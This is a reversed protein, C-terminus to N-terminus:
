ASGLNRVSQATAQANWRCQNTPADFTFAIEVPAVRRQEATGAALLYRGLGGVPGFYFDVIASEGPMYTPGRGFAGGGILEVPIDTTNRFSLVSRSVGNGFTCGTITFDGFGPLRLLLDGSNGDGNPGTNASTFLRNSVILARGSFQSQDDKAALAVGVAAIIGVIVVAIAGALWGRTSRV